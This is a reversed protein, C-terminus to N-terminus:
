GAIGLWPRQALQRRQSESRQYWAMADFVERARVELQRVLDALQSIPRERGAAEIQECVSAVGGAAMQKSSGKITHVQYEIVEDDACALADRIQQLRDAVDTTFSEILEDVLDSEEGAVELITAPPSWVTVKPTPPVCTHLNVPTESAMTRMTRELATISRWGACELRDVLRGTIIQYVLNAKTLTLWSISAAQRYPPRLLIAELVSFM